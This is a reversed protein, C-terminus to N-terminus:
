GMIKKERSACSFQAGNYILCFFISFCLDKCRLGHYWAIEEMPRNM